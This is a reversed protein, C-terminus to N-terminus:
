PQLVEHIVKRWYPFDFNRIILSGGSEGLIFPNLISELISDFDEIIPIVNTDIPATKSLDIRPLYIRVNSKTFEPQLYASTEPGFIVLGWEGCDKATWSKFLSSLIPTGAPHAQIYVDFAEGSFTEWYELIQNQFYASNISSVDAVYLLKRSSSSYSHESITFRHSFRQAEVLQLSSSLIGLSELYKANDQSLCLIKESSSLPLEGDLHILHNLIQSDQSRIPVHIVGLTKLNLGKAHLRLAMEWSQGEMLHFVYSLQRFKSLSSEILYHNLEVRAIGFGLNETKIIGVSDVTPLSFLKRLALSGVYHQFKIVRTFTKALLPLDFLSAIPLISFESKIQLDSIQRAIRRHSVGPAKYPILFWTAETKLRLDLFKVEGWFGLIDQEIFEELHLSPSFFGLRTQNAGIAKTRRYPLYQLYKTVLYALSFLFQFPLLLLLRLSDYITFEIPLDEYKRWPYQGWEPMVRITAKLNESLQRTNPNSLSSLYKGLDRIYAKQDRLFESKLFVGSSLSFSPTIITTDECPLLLCSFM